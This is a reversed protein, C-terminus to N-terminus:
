KDCHHKFSIIEHNLYSHTDKYTHPPPHVYANTSQRREMITDIYLINEAITKIWYALHISWCQNSSTFILTCPGWHSKVTMNIGKMVATNLYNNKYLSLQTTDRWEISPSSDNQHNDAQLFSQSTDKWRDMILGRVNM